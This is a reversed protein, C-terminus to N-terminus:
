KVVDPRIWDVELISGQPLDAPEPDLRLQLVKGSWLPHKALDFTVERWQGDGAVNLTAQKDPGWGPSRSARWFLGVQNGGTLRVRMTLRKHTDAPIAAPGSIAYPDPGTVTIVLRGGEAKVGCSHAATWGEADKDFEWATSPKPAEPASYKLGTLTLRASGKADAKMGVALVSAKANYAWGTQGAGLSERRPQGESGVTIKADPALAVPAVTAYFVENPAYKLLVRMEKETLELDVDAAATVHVLGGEMKATTSRLGPDLGELALLNVLIDEPNIYVPNRRTFWQGWSDPYSGALKENDMPWQQYTASVTIGKAQKRWWPNADYRALEQLSYAYVLGCWQVPLGIWSHTFFTSGLVPISAYRMGPHAGDDWMYQFALGTRAWFRADDLLTDEGTAMAAWVCARVAYASALVDPEM